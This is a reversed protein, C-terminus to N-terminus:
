LQTEKYWNITSNLAEDTDVSPQWHLENVLKSHDILLSGTLREVVERKGTLKGALKLFSVPCPFLFVKKGLHHSIRNILDPVSIESDSVLYTQNAAEPHQISTLIAHALNEVYLISRFTNISALPLPWGKEALRILRLFNAKVDPGYILPPRFIVYDMSCKRCIDKIANEPSVNKPDLGFFIKSYFRTLQVFPYKFFLFNRYMAEIMNDLNSYASDAVVAKINDNKAMIAM